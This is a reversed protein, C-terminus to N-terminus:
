LGEVLKELDARKLKGRKSGVPRLQGADIAERLATLSLGSLAAAEARTLLLKNEIRVRANDAQDRKTLLDLLPLFQARLALTDPKDATDSDGHKGTKGKADNAAQDRKMPPANMARQLTELQGREYVPAPGTRGHEYRPTLKGQATYREVARESVSLFAAAEKKNM